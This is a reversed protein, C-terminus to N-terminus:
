RASTSTAAGSRALKGRVRKFTRVLPSYVRREPWGGTDRNVRAWIRRVFMRRRQSAPLLAAKESKRVVPCSTSRLCYDHFRGHLLERRIDQIMPSNWADRYGEMPAIPEGGYCCPLVGRRLIYLSKWPELCAVPSEAGLSPLPEETLLEAAAQAPSAADDVGAAPAPAREASPALSANEVPASAAGAPAADFAEPFLEEVKGGFDMQDALEVGLERCLSAARASARVLEKFPLLENKYEFHYGARDWELAMTDSYNLPRLVMRDVQLDAALRVFAELEHVNCRMPM